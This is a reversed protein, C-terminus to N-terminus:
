RRVDRVEAEVPLTAGKRVYSVSNLLVDFCDTWIDTQWYRKFGSQVRYRKRNGVSADFNKEAVTEIFKGFLLTHIINAVGHYDIQYTWRRMGVIEAGDHSVPPWDAIFQVTPKYATMDVGRGFDILALGKKDWGHSGDA